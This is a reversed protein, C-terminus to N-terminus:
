TASRSKERSEATRSHTSLGVRRLRTRVLAGRRRARAVSFNREARPDAASPDTPRRGHQM